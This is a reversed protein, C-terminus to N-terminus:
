KAEQGTGASAALSVTGSRLRAKQGSNFLPALVFRRIANLIWKWHVAVHLGALLLSLNAAASHLGAWARGGQVAFGFLPVVERSIMLGSFIIVSLDIFLASNLILSFRQGAPMQRFFRRLTAAIWQWHLLLHVLIGAGLGLGLWEHIAFGTFSPSLVLMIATFLGADVWLNVRTSDPQDTKTANM